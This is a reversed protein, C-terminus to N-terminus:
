GNKRIISHARACNESNMYETMSMDNICHDNIKKLLEPNKLLEERTYVKEAKSEAKSCNCTETKNCGTFSFM